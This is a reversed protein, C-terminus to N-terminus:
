LPCPLSPHRRSPRSFSAQQAQPVALLLRRAQPPSAGREPLVSQSTPRELPLRELPQAPQVWFAEQLELLPAPALSVQLEPQARLLEWEDRLARWAARSDPQPAVLL